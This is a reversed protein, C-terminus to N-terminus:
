WNFRIGVTGATATHHSRGGDLSWRYSAQGYLSMNQNVLATVGGGVELALDGLRTEITPSAAGFRADDKGSLAHWLNVRAYPQWLTGQEDRASYQLRAGLRGTWATGANWDVSSYRDQSRNVSIGQYVIQAQPEVLWGNEAGFRIPYGGELSATYATANTSLAADYFSSAKVDYWSAQFVADLYGGSPGFHTWYAGISRGTMQLQGAGLGQQGLAFGSVRSANYDTNALYVGLYDHHGGSYPDTRIIDLGAQLGIIRGAASSDVTGSWRDRTREGIVRAWSANTYPSAGALDRVNEEEGVREHLTGLTALGMRRGIAPVPAYLAVEPRYLPIEPGGPTTSTDIRQSRLFWDNSDTSGGRFLQYEYVGAAARQGLTFADTATTGGNTVQVLRIGDAVTQAGPGGANDVLLSTTGSAQGGDIVLLNTPSSDAGLYTNFGVYGASGTYSGVTLTSYVGQRALFQILGANTATGTANSDGTVNWASGAGIAVNTANQALGTWLSRQALAVDASNGADALLDGIWESAAISISATNGPGSLVLNGAWASNSLNYALTSPDVVVDGTLASIGGINLTLNAPNGSADEFVQALLLRGNVVAPTIATGGSISVTGTGGEALVIAGSAASLSGGAVSVVTPASGALHIASSGAGRVAVSTGTAALTGGDIGAIGHAASGTTAIAGGIISATGGQSARVGVADNGNTTIRSNETQLQSGIGVVDAGHAELGIETHPFQLVPPASGTVRFGTTVETGTVIMTGANTVLLGASSAGSTRNLTNTLIVTSGSGDAVAGASNPQYTFIGYGSFGIRGGADAWVGPSNAGYTASTAGNGVQISSGAGRALMGPSDAIVTGGYYDGTAIAGGNVTIGGGGTVFLGASGNSLINVYTGNLTLSSGAGSAVAGPASDGFSYTNLNNLTISGGAGAFVASAGVGWTTVDTRTLTITGGSAAYAGHANDLTTEVRSDTLTVNSGTGVAGIGYAGAGSTYVSTHNGTIVGGGDAYLGHSGTGDTSVTTGVLPTGILSVTGGGTARAGFAGTAAATTSIATGSATITGAAGAYLGAGNAGQATVSGGTLDIRAGQAYAGYAIGAAGTTTLVANTGIAGANGTVRLATGDATITANGGSSGDELTVLTNAGSAEVGIGGADVVVGSGTVQGGSHLIIGTAGNGTTITTHISGNDQLTTVSNAGGTEVGTGTTNFAVGSGTFNGGQSTDSNGVGTVATISGGTLDVSGAQNVLVGRNGSIIEADTGTVSGGTVYIGVSGANIVTHLPASPNRTDLGLNITGGSTIAGYSGAQIDVGDADITAGSLVWLGNSSSGSATVSGGTLNITGASAYAGSNTYSSQGGAQLIADTANVVAGSGTVQLASGSGSATSTATIQTAGTAGSGITLTGSRVEVGNATGTSISTIVTGNLAGTGSFQTLGTADNTTISSDTLLLSADNNISVASQGGPSTLTVGTGTYSGTGRVYVAGQTATGDRTVNSEVCAGSGQSLPGAPTSACQALAQAPPLLAAMAAGLMYRHNCVSSLLAKKLANVASADVSRICIPKELRDAHM